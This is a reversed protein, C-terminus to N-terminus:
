KKILEVSYFYTKKKTIRNYSFPRVFINFVLLVIPAIIFLAILLYYKFLVVWAKRKLPTTGKKIIQRAWISFLKKARSEIFLINTNINVRNSLIVQEQIHDFENNDFSKQIILGFLSAELIDKDSIGPLPFIGYKKEKKGTLMWHLISIASLLNPNHDVFPINGVLVGDADKILQKVSEQSNLWMNRAGIVTVIRTNNMIKKFAENKLIATAPLSPSLFWPQYGFIILDYKDRKFEIANLEIEKELVTEPMANFFEHSIWPFSFKTKPQVSVYEIEEKITSVLNSLLDTLQGSQSYSIVLIYKM